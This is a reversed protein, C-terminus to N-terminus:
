VALCRAGIEILNVERWKNPDSLDGSKPVWVVQGEHWETFDLTDEWFKIIFDFLHLLNEPTM